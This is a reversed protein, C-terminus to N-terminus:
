GNVRSENSQIDNQILIVLYTSIAGLMQFIECHSETYYFAWVPRHFSRVMSILSYDIQVLGFATFQVGRQFSHMSFLQIQLLLPPTIFHLRTAWGQSSVMEALEEEEKTFPINHLQASVLKAEDVAGQCANAIVALHLFSYITPLGTFLLITWDADTYYKTKLVHVLFAFSCILTTQFSHMMTFPLSWAFSHNIMDAAEHLLQYATQVNFLKRCALTREEESKGQAVNLKSPNEGSKVFDFDSTRRAVRLLEENIFANLTEFRYRLLRVYAVMQTDRQLCIINSLGTFIYYLPKADDSSGYSLWVFILQYCISVLNWLATKTVTNRRQQDFDIPFNLQLQVITDIRNIKEFLKLQACRKKWSEFLAVMASLQIFNLSYSRYMARLHNEDAVYHEMYFWTRVMSIFTLSFLVASYVTFLKHQRARLKRGSVAFPSLGFAQWVRLPSIITRLFRM